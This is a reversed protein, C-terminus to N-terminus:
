GPCLEEMREIFVTAALLDAVGGCSLNRRIFKRHVEVALNEWGPSNVGGRRNFEGAENRAFELGELGGRYLLNTDQINELMAFFAHTRVANRCHIELVSKFAPLGFRYVSRFGGAAEAKAGGCGYRRAVEMGHSNEQIEAGLISKGWLRGVIDGLNGPASFGLKYGAAAALLGLTFIAGRHTNVGGTAAFMKKEAAIGLQRLEVIGSARMGASAIDRFYDHLVEISAKFIGSNMDKHSGNDVYSVLGPKPYSKLEERLASEVEFAILEPWRSIDASRGFPIISKKLLFVDNVTKIMIQPSDNIFERWSFAMGNWLELEIDCLKGCPQSFLRLVAALQELEISNKIRFRLDIDSNEHLYNLGTLHQWALSGFVEPNFNNERCANLFGAMQLQQPPPLHQLCKELGPLKDRRKIFNKPVIFAIRKKGHEPPLPIGCHVGEGGFALGPRRVIVPRGSGIWKAIVARDPHDSLDLGDLFLLDHRNFTVSNIM